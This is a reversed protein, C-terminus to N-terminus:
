NFLVITGNGVDCGGGNLHFRQRETKVIVYFPSKTPM